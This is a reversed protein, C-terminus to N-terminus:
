RCAGATPRGSPCQDPSPPRASSIFQSLWFVLLALVLLVGALYATRRMRRRRAGSPDVFVPTPDRRADRLVSTAAREPLPAKGVARDVRARGVPRNENGDPTSVQRVYFLVCEGAHDVSGPTGSLDIRREPIPITAVSSSADSRAAQPSSEHGSAPCPGDATVRVSCCRRM